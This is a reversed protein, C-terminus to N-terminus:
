LSMLSIYRKLNRRTDVRLVENSRKDKHNHNNEEECLFAMCACLNKLDVSETNTIMNAFFSRIAKEITHMQGDTTLCILINVVQFKTM